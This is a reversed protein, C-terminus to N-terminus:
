GHGHTLSEQYLPLTVQVERLISEAAGLC